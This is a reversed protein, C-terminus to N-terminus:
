QEVQNLKFGPYTIKFDGIEFTGEYKSFVGEEDLSNWLNSYEKLILALSKSRFKPQLCFEIPLCMIWDPISLYDSGTFRTPLLYYRINSIDKCDIGLKLCISLLVGQDSELSAKNQKLQDVGQSMVSNSHDVEAVSDARITLKAQGVSLTAENKNYEIIDLEMQGSSTDVKVNTLVKCETNSLHDKLRLLTAKEMDTSYADYLQKDHHALLRRFITPIHSMMIVHPLILFFKENIEVLPCHFLTFKRPTESNFSLWELFTRIISRDIGVANFIDDVLRKKTVLICLENTKSTATYTGYNRISIDEVIREKCLEWLWNWLSWFDSATYASSQINHPFDDYASTKDLSLDAPSRVDSVVNRETSIRDGILRSKMDSTGTWNPDDKFLLTNHQPAEVLYGGRNACIILDRIQSYNALDALTQNAKNAIDDKYKRRLKDILIFEPDPLSLSRLAWELAFVDERIHVHGVFSSQTALFGTLAYCRFKEETLVSLYFAVLQHSSAISTVENNRWNELLEMVKGLDM